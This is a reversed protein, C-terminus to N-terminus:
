MIPCLLILQNLVQVFLKMGSVTGSVSSNVTVIATGSNGFGVYSNADTVSVLVYTTTSSPSVAISTGSVYNTLTVNSVGNNYVVTYPSTGGTIAVSL